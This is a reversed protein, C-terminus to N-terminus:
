CLSQKGAADLIKHRHLPSCEVAVAVVGVGVQSTFAIATTSDPRAPGDFACAHGRVSEPHQRSTAGLPAKPVHHSAATASMWIKNECM